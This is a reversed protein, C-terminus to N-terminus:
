LVIDNEIWKGLTPRRWAAFGDLVEPTTAGVVVAARMEEALFGDAVARDLLAVAPQWFGATDVLGIPKDHLGLQTWTIAEFIEEFTGVGGPLGLFGDSLEAMRAKREHMSGTVELTTVEPKAIERRNLFDPIVGIVEGGGALVADAVRGMLGVSGGGYVLGIGRRALEAGTAEAATVYAPDLGPNSGCYVCVRNM